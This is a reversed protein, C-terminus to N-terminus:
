RLTTLFAVMENIQEETLGMDPMGRDDDPAMPKIDEPNRIWAELNTVDPILGDKTNYNDVPSDGDLTDEIGLYLSTTAGAFTERTMLHTLNPATGSVTGAVGGEPGGLGDITHCGTCNSEFYTRGADYQEWDTTSAFDSESLEDYDNMQNQAWADFEDRPLAIVYMQM